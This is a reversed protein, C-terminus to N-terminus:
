WNHFMGKMTRSSFYRLPVDLHLIQLLFTLIFNNTIFSRSLLPIRFLLSYYAISIVFDLTWPTFFSFLDIAFHKVIRLSSIHFKASDPHRRHFYYIQRLLSFPLQNLRHPFFLWLTILTLLHWTILDIIASIWFFLLIFVFFFHFSIFLQSEHSSQHSIRSLCRLPIYIIELESFHLM